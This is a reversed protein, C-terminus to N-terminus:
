KDVSAFTVKWTSMLDLFLISKLKTGGTSSKKDDLILGTTMQLYIKDLIAVYPNCLLTKPCVTPEMTV